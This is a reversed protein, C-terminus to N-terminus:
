GGDRAFWACLEVLSPCGDWLPNPMLRDGAFTVPNNYSKMCSGLIFKDVFILRLM